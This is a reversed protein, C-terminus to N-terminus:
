QRKERQLTIHATGRSELARDTAVAVNVIAAGGKKAIAEEKMM